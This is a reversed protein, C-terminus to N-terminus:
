IKFIKKNENYGKIYISNLTSGVEVETLNRSTIIFEERNSLWYCLFSSNITNNASIGPISISYILFGTPTGDSRSMIRQALIVPGNYQLWFLKEMDFLALFNNPCVDNAFKRFVFYISKNEDSKISAESEDFWYGDYDTVMNSQSLEGPYTTINVNKFTSLDVGFVVPGVRLDEGVSITILTIFVALLSIISKV